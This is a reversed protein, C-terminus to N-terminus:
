RPNKKSAGAAAPAKVDDDAEREATKVATEDEAGKAKQIAQGLTLHDKVMATRLTAFPIGLNHSVHLAAIFQGQNKFGQSAQNLTVGKPLLTTVKSALQPHSTIKAAIPNLPPSPATTTATTTKPAAPTTHPNGHTQGVAVHTAPAAAFALPAASVLGLTFTLIRM